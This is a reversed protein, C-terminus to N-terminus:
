KEGRLMAIGAIASALFVVGVIILNTANLEWLSFSLNDLNAKPNGVETIVALNPNGYTFIPFGQYVFLLLILIFVVCSCLGTLSVGSVKM